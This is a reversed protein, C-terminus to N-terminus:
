EYGELMSLYTHHLSNLLRVQYDNIEGGHPEEDEREDEDDEAQNFL